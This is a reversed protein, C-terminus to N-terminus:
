RLSQMSSNFSNIFLWKLTFGLLITDNKDKERKIMMYIELQFAIRNGIQHAKRWKKYLDRANSFAFWNKKERWKKMKNMLFLFFISFMQRDCPIAISHRGWARIEWNFIYGRSNFSFSFSFYKLELISFAITKFNM